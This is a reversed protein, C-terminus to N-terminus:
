GFVRVQLQRLNYLRDTKSDTALGRLPHPGYKRKPGFRDRASQFVSEVFDRRGLASGDSFYRVKCRLYDAAPLKGGEALVALATDRPIRDRWLRAKDGKALEEAQAAENAPIGFLHCRWKRLAEAPAPQEPLHGGHPQIAALFRVAESAEKSNEGGALAEAYGCWPYEAPDECIRARVPNLDIYAAMARLAHCCGEVLVSRYREEWLTGRRGHKGNFWQTFRQKLVKMFASIDWMRSFWRQRLAEAADGAGISRLHGLEWELGGAIKDGLCGRVKAVLICDGPLASDAPRQPVEVLIHFHNSMICYSLVRLGYLREYTRMFAVLQNKEEPGLVFARNVVRSVCHYYAFPHTTPAKLRPRRVPPLTPLPDASALKRQLPVPMKIDCIRARVPNLGIYAAMARLAHCCGEVLVSRYREEWLTGRRGHKGNFWQTFRQKLVKMFASIDWMRSFWRQRLAEAADGAGISRLHGLEWELGGAIKDGLCGRVKAVLICDGPLASDAPRQPVEVLIHFHNSMICYSLVRLGYLREYTRMFAVLQNKEEPGLVFARNVVRSVCHYYAFPHTTPAKLRPRRM